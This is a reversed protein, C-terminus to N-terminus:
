LEDDDEVVVPAAAVAVPEPDPKGFHEKISRQLDRQTSDTIGTIIKRQKDTLEAQRNVTDSLLKLSMAMLKYLEGVKEVVKGTPWLDGNKLEYEQRARQGNWFEKSLLKPLEAHNMKRLYSEIDDKPKVLYPACTSIKWVKSGHRVADCPVSHLKETIARSDMRFAVSLQSLNLGEYLAIQSTDDLSRQNRKTSVTAM